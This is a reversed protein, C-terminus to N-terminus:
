DDALGAALGGGAAAVLERLLPEPDDARMLVEGILAADAPTAAIRRVDAAGAVGSLHVRTVGRPIARLVRRARDLDIELTDLDRANVGLIPAHAALAAEVEAETAVEVLPVLDHDRAARVLEDLHRPAVCRAILLAADAGFARAVALQREHIIFDKCLLPRTTAARAARLHAPDGGFYTRDCLVSIMAAGGREYAVAREAVGLVTSLAGASPSRRKIEAILHLPAGPARDLAVGRRAPPAPLTFGALRALEERKTALIRELWGM